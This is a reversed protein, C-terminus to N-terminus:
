GVARGGEGHCGARGRRSCAAGAGGPAPGGPLVEARWGLLRGGEREVGGPAGDAGAGAPVGAAAVRGAAGPPRLRRGAGDEEGSGVNLTEDSVDAAMAQVTAGAVDDVYVFDFSQSGDGNIVPPLGGAIRQLVSHVLGFGMFPGYVNMYRLTVYPLEFTSGLARLFAEGAIKSAGYVTRAQLPHGEDMVELTDGYVSSASSFVVKQVGAEADFVNFSGDM